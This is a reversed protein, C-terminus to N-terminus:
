VFTQEKKEEKIIVYRAMELIFLINLLTEIATQILLRIVFLCPWSHDKRVMVVMWVIPGCRHHWVFSWCVHCQVVFFLDKCRERWSIHSTRWILCRYPSTHFVRTKIPGKMTCLFVHLISWYVPIVHHLYVGDDGHAVGNLHWSKYLVKPLAQTVVRFDRHLKHKSDRCTIYVYHHIYLVAYITTHTYYHTYHHIYYQALIYSGFVGCSDSWAESKCNGM